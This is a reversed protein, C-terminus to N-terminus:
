TQSPFDGNVCIIFTLAIYPQMNNHPATSGAAQMANAAMATPWLVSGYVDGVTAAPVAPVNQTPSPSTAATTKRMVSHSHPPMEQATLTHAQEGGREGLSYNRFDAHIPVRGRLDPLAFNTQGNGGYTTGLISFLPQNTQINILQGECPMWGPPIVGFGAMRIEGLYAM